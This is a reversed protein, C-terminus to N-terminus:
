GSLSSASARRSERRPWQQRARPACAAVASRTQEPLTDTGATHIKITLAIKDFFYNPSVHCNLVYLVNPLSLYNRNRFTRETVRLPAFPSTEAYFDLNKAASLIVLLPNPSEAVSVVYNECGCLSLRSVFSLCL